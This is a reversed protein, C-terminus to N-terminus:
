GKSPSNNYTKKNVLTVGALILILSISHIVLDIKEGLFLGSLIIGIIPIFNVFIVARNADLRNVGEVYTLYGLITSLLALYLIGFWVWPSIDFYPDISLYEPSIFYNVPVLTILGFVSVYTVISLSSPKVEENQYKLMMQKLIVTYSAYAVAAMLVLGNGFLRTPIEESEIFFSVLFVGLFGLLVGIVKQFTIKYKLFITTILLVWIPSTSIVLSSDSGTTNKVGNLYGYQYITVSILGMILLEKWQKKLFEVNFSKEKMRLIILFVPVVIYYRLTAIILPPTSAVNEETFLSRGLPWTSGWIIVTVAM